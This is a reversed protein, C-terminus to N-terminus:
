NLEKLINYLLVYASGEFTEDDIAVNKPQTEEYEKLWQKIERKLKETKM